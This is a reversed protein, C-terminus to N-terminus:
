ALLQADLEGIGGQPRELIWARLTRRALERTEELPIDQPAEDGHVVASRAKYSRRALQFARRRSEEDTGTLWAIRLSVRENSVSKGTSTLLAEFAVRLLDILSDTYEYRVYASDFRRLALQLRKDERVERLAGFLKRLVPGDGGEFEYSKPHMYHGAGWPEYLEGKLLSTGELVEPPDPQTWLITTGMVGGRQLRLARVVDEITEIAHQLGFTPDSALDWHLNIAHTWRHLRDAIRGTPGAWEDGFSRALMEQDEETFPRIVLDDELVIPERPGTLNHLPALTRRWHSKESAEAPM